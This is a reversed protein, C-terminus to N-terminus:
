YSQGISLAEIFEDQFTKETSLEIHEAIRALHNAREMETTSLLALQAGNGAANGISQIKDLAVQPLLGIGLASEKGIYNGFAGALHIQDIEEAGVGLHHLMVRIGALLAGKAM